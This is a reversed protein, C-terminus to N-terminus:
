EIITVQVQRRNPSAPDIIEAQVEAAAPTTLWRLFRYAPVTLLLLALISVLFAVISLLLLLIGPIALVGLILRAWAPMGGFSGRFSQFRGFYHLFQLM